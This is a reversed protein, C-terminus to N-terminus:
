AADLAPAIDSLTPCTARWGHRISLTTPLTERPVRPDLEGKIRMLRVESAIETFALAPYEGYLEHAADAALCRCRTWLTRAEGSPSPRLCEPITGSRDHEHADVVRYGTAVTVQRGPTRCADGEITFM